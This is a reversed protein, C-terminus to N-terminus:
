LQYITHILIEFEVKSKISQRLNTSFFSNWSGIFTKLVKRVVLNINKFLQCCKTPPKMILIHTFTVAFKLCYKLASKNTDVIFQDLSGSQYFNISFLLIYNQVCIQYIV